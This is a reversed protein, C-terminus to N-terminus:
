KNVMRTLHIVELIGNLDAYNRASSYLYDEPNEVIGARVPNNHIYDLKEIIFLNSYLEVAHNDQKWVQFDKNNSNSKGALGFISLMWEKRSEPENQIAIVLQKSTYKKLDRIVDSLLFGDSARAILHIHNSMLVYGYIELGKEKQCYRLSNIVIDRYIKRTFIDIWGVITMTLYHAANQDKIKYKSSM